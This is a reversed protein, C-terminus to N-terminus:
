NVAKDDLAKKLDADFTFVSNGNVKAYSVLLCDVFDLKSNAYLNLAFLVVNEDPVLNAKLKIFDKISDAIKQRSFEYQKGLTYVVESIVEVPCYCDYKNIIDATKDTYNTLNGDIFYV